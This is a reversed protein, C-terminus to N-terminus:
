RGQKLSVYTYNRGKVPVTFRGDKLALRAGTREDVAVVGGVRLGLAKLDVTVTVDAPNPLRNTVPLVFGGGPTKYLSVLAKQTATKVPCHDEWYGIFKSDVVKLRVLLDWFNSMVDPNMFGGTMNADTVAAMAILSEGPQPGALDGSFYNKAGRKFEPLFCHILGSAKDGYEVRWAVDDLTDMYFWKDTALVGANEEGPLWFDAWCHSPPFLKAHAHTMWYRREGGAQRHIAAMRKSFERKGMFTFTVGKKGFADTFGCGDTFNDCAVLGDTDTYFGSIGTQRLTKEAYYIMFENFSKSAPCVAALRYEVPWADRFATKMDTNAYSASFNNAWLKKYLDWTPNHDATCSTCGYYLMKIGSKRLKQDAAKLVDPRLVKYNGEQEAYHTFWNRATQHKSPPTGGWGFRWNRLERQLPKVPTAQFAFTYTIPGPLATPAAILKLEIRADQGGYVEVVPTGEPYVWNAESECFYLFGEDENCAWVFPEFKNSRWLKGDWPMRGSKIQGTQSSGRLYKVVDSRLPIQLSLAQIRADKAEPTQTVSAVALGDYEMWASWAVQVGAKAFTGKGSWESRSPDKRDQKAFTTKLPTPESDKETKVTMQIPGRLIEKGGNVAKALFPGDFSYTRNWCSATNEGTYKMPTWPDLVQDTIGAKTGVWPLEPITMRKVAEFAEGQGPATIRFTIQYEGPVYGFPITFTDGVGKIKFLASGQDRKFQPNDKPGEPGLFSIELQGKGETLPKLWVPDINTFNAEMSLRKGAPDPIWGLDIPETVMFRMAYSLVSKGGADTVSIAFTGEKVNQIQEQLKFVGKDLTRKKDLAGVNESKVSVAANLGTTGAISLDLKGAAVQPSMEFRVGETGEIFNLRSCRETGQLFGNGLFAWCTYAPRFPAQRRWDRCFNALWQSGPKPAEVGLKEFPIAAEVTWSDKEVNTKFVIGSNWKTDNFRADFVVGASNIIFQFFNGAAKPDPILFLEFADDEYTSGDHEKVNATLKGGEKPSSLGVYLNKDDYCISAAAWRTHPYGTSADMPIPVRSASAWAGDDLKGDVNVAGDVRPVTVEPPPLAGGTEALYRQRVRDASLVGRWIEVEDIYSRDKGNHYRGDGSHFIPVLGFEQNELKPLVVGVLDRKEGPRGNVYIALSGSDWTVDIKQWKGSWDAPGNLQYLKHGPTNPTGHGLVVRASGGNTPSDIYLVFPTGDETGRVQFFKRFRGDKDNWNAPKVWFSVSASSMDLNGKVAYSCTEDDGLVLGTGKFGEKATLGLDRTLSSKPNGKAVQANATLDDFAVRFLLEPEQAPARSSVSLAAVVLMLLRTFWLRSLSTKARDAPRVAPRLALRSAPRDPLFVTSPTDLKELRNRCTM